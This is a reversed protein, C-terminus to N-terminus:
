QQSPKLYTLVAALLNGSPSIFQSGGYVSRLYIFHEYMWRLEADAMDDVTYRDEIATIYNQITTPKM